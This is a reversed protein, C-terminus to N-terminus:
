KKKSGKAKAKNSKGKNAKNSKNAKNAKAKNSKNRNRGKTKVSGKKNNSRYHTGFGIKNQSPSPDIKMLNGMHIAIQRDEFKIAGPKLLCRNDHGDNHNVGSECGHCKNGCCECLDNKHTNYFKNLLDDCKKQDNVPPTTIDCIYKKLYELEYKRIDLDRYIFKINKYKGTINVLDLLTTM